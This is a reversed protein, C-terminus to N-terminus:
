PTNWISEMWEAQARDHIESEIEQAPEPSAAGSIDQCPDSVCPAEVKRAGGAEKVEPAPSAAPEEGSARGTTGTLALAAAVTVTWRIARNMEAEKEGRM